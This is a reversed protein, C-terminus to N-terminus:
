TVISASVKVSAIVSCRLPDEQALDREISPLGHRLWGRQRQEGEGHTGREDAARASCLQTREPAPM